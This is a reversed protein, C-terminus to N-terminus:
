DAKHTTTPEVILPVVSWVVLAAYYGTPSIYGLHNKLILGAILIAHGIFAWGLALLIQKRNTIHRELVSRYFWIAFPLFVLVSTALGPNYSLDRLGSIIHSLANIFIISAMCLAPFTTKPASLIALSAVLWVLSTNIVFIDTKTILIINPDVTGLLKRLTDNLYGQFAYINGFVDIWHEEFQHIIYFVLMLVSLFRTDAHVSTDVDRGAFVLFLLFPAMFTGIKMWHDFLFPHQGVPLWLMLFAVTLFGFSTKTSSM